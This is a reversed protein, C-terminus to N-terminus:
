KEERDGIIRDLLADHVPDVRQAEPHADYWAVIERAGEAFPIEAAFGPVITRIKSNDFIANHAKDGLLSDGFGEDYTAVVASPVHVANPTVGAAEGLLRAIENWTLVEDSTIHYAQGIARPEGLLPVFARAFDRHHTLTWLSEGDDHILIPKGQRLRDLTTYGGHFPLLTADYTHSPRVITVPFGEDRYAAMLLEECAIKNRSYQWFPNDLPTEETIPLRAPPKQYASASSIFIFQGVRGRFLELDTAIHDTTFAIWDVVADFTRGRLAEAAAAPDRVDAHIVEAAAPVPRFDTRGRNLLTLDIGREVALAACASSIIGSGGIFLVNM